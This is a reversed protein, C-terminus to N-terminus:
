HESTETGHRFGVVVSDRPIGWVDKTSRSVSKTTVRRIQTCCVRGAKPHLQMAAVVPLITSKGSGTPCHAIIVKKTLFKELFADKSNWVPLRVKPQKNPWDNTEGQKLLFPKATSSSPRQVTVTAASPPSPEPASAPASETMPVTDPVATNFSEPPDDPIESWPQRKKPPPSAKVPSKAKATGGSSAPPNDRLEGISGKEAISASGKRAMRRKASGPTTPEDPQSPQSEEVPMDAQRSDVQSSPVAEPPQIEAQPNSPQASSSGEAPQAEQSEVNTAPQSLERDAPTEPPTGTDADAQAPRKRISAKGKPTPTDGTRPSSAQTSSAPKDTLKASKQRTSLESATDHSRIPAKAPGTAYQLAKLKAQGREVRQAERDAKGKM